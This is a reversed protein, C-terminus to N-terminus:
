KARAKDVLEQLLREQAKAENLDDTYMTDSIHLELNTEDLYCEDSVALLEKHTIEEFEQVTCDVSVVYITVSM